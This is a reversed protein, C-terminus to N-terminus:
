EADSSQDGLFNFSPRKRRPEPSSGEGESKADAAGDHEALSHRPAAARSRRPANVAADFEKVDEIEQALERRIKIARAQEMSPRSNMGLDTLISRLHAIQQNATPM